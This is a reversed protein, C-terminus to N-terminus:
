SRSLAPGRDREERLLRVVRGRDHEDVAGARADKFMPAVGQQARLFCGRRLGAHGCRDGLCRGNRPQNARRVGVAPSKELEQPDGVRNAAVDLYASAIALDISMKTLQARITPLASLSQDLHELRSGTCHQIAADVAAAALGLSVAFNGLNFWPM